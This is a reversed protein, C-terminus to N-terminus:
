ALIALLSSFRSLFPFFGAEDWLWLQFSEIRAAFASSLAFFSLLVVAFRSLDVGCNVCLGEWVVDHDCSPNMAKFLGSHNNAAWLMRFLLSWNLCCSLVPLVNTGICDNYFCEVSDERTVLLFQVIIKIIKYILM